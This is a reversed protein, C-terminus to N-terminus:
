QPKCVVWKGQMGEKAKIHGEKSRAKLWDDLSEHSSGTISPQLLLSRRLWDATDTSDSCTMERYATRIILWSQLRTKSRLADVLTLIAANSTNVIQCDKTSSTDGLLTLLQTSCTLLEVRAYNCSRLAIALSSIWIYHASDRPFVSSPFFRLQDRFAGQSPHFSSIRHLLAILISLFRDATALPTTTPLYFNPLLYALTSTVQVPSQFITTLRLSEEFVELAFADTRKSAV